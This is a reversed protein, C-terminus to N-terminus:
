DLHFIFLTFYCTYYMSERKYAPGYKREPQYSCTQGIQQSNCLDGGCFHWLSGAQYECQRYPNVDRPLDKQDACGRYIVPCALIYIYM